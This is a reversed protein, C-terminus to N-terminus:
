VCVVRLSLILRLARGICLMGEESDFGVTIDDHEQAYDLGELNVFRRKAKEEPSHEYDKSSPAPPLTFKADVMKIAWKKNKGDGKVAEFVDTSKIQFCLAEAHAFGEMFAILQFVTNQPNTVVQIRVNSATWKHYIPVVMRRRSIGLTSALGDFRVTFGTTATEFAHLDGPTAFTLTRVTPLNQAMRYVDTIGDSVNHPTNRVDISMTMDLQPQRLIQLTPTNVCPLRLLLEGRSLNMRDTICGYGHRAIVRLSQSDVTEPRGSNPDEIFHNTVGLRQWQLAALESHGSSSGSVADTMSEINLDTLAMKGIISEDPRVDIGNLKNYLEQRGEMDHFVLLMRCQRHQETIRVVMATTGHAAADTIFEFFLPASGGIEHSFSTLGKQGADTVVAFRFGRHRKHVAGGDRSEDLREWLFARCRKVKEKPFAKANSSDAYQVEVLQTEHLLTENKESRLSHDVKRSFEVLNWLARFDHEFFRVTLDIGRPLRVSIALSSAKWSVDQWCINSANSQRPAIKVYVLESQSAIIVTSQYDRKGRLITLNCPVSVRDTSVDDTNLSVNVTSRTFYHYDTTDGLPLADSPSAGHGFTNANFSERAAVGRLAATADPTFRPYELWIQTDQGQILSQPPPMVNNRLMSHSLTKLHDKLIQLDRLLLADSDSRQGGDLSGAKDYSELPDSLMWSTKALDVHPQLLLERHEAEPSKARQQLLGELGIKGRLYWWYAARLWMQPTCNEAPQEKEATLRFVGKMHAVRSSFDDFASQAALDTASPSHSPPSPRLFSHSSHASGPRGADSPHLSGMPSKAPQMPEQRDVNFYDNASPRRAYPSPSPVGLQSSASSGNHPPQANPALHASPQPAAVADVSSPPSTTRSSTGHLPPPPGAGDLARDMSSSSKQDYSNNRSHGGTAPAFKNVNTKSGNPRSMLM